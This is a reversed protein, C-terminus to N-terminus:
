ARVEEIIGLIEALVLVSFTILIIPSATLAAISGFSLIRLGSKIFSITKHTM